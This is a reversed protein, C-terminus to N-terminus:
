EIIKYREILKHNTFNFTHFFLDEDSLTKELRDDVSTLGSQMREELNLTSAKSEILRQFDLNDRLGRELLPPTLTKYFSHQLVQNINPRDEPELQLLSEILDRASSDGRKVLGPEYKTIDNFEDGTNPFPQHWELVEYLAVLNFVVFCSM